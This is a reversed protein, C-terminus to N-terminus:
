YEEDFSISQMRSLNNDELEFGTPNSPEILDNSTFMTKDMDFVDTTGALFDKENDFHEGENTGTLPFTLSPSMELLSPKKASVPSAKTDTTKEKSAVIKPIAQPAAKTPLKLTKKTANIKDVKVKTSTSRKKADYKELKTFFVHLLCILGFVSLMDNPEM